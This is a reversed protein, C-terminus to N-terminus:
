DKNMYYICNNCVLKNKKRTLLIKLFNNDGCDCCCILESVQSPRRYSLIYNIIENPINM